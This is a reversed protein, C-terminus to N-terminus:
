TLSKKHSKSHFPHYLLRLANFIVVLISAEHVFMGISMNMWNSFFLSLILLLVVGLAILINELMNAQILKALRIATPLKQLDSQMLVVDSSEIAIDTGQGMAIGIDAYSLSPSDNIGDGVFAVVQGQDKLAKVQQSKEQPLLNGIAQDIQLEKAIISATEQHDGSLMLTHKVGLAKLQQVLAKAGPRINDRIGMLHTLTQNVSVFVLSHGQMALAHEHSLVEQSLPVDQQEMLSRNGVAVAQGDINATVGKGKITSLEMVDLDTSPFYELIAKSLPHDSSKEIAVLYDIAQPHEAYSFVESVVPKGQTLTGTKDFILTDIRSLHRIVESGKFLIGNRAGNGIGAVNSVPIGIVLAGPCGLVLITIALELNQSILYTLLAVILVFPTYYKAFADIFREAQSKSDQAEEVLEIIKGFTTDNGIHEAEIELRGDDLLTGAFVPDGISKHIIQSEGTISAENVYGGGTIVHGDVPIAAGTKVLIHDSAQVEEIDVELYQNDVWKWATKPSLALLEQIASRTHQLTKQELFHGFLFLFTVIASEEYNAIVLAGIVAITVLLEISIIGIRLSSWAQIAIPIVGIISSVLLLLPVYTQNNLGFKLILSSLILLGTIWTIHKKHRLIHHMM